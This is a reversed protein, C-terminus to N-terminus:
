QILGWGKELPTGMGRAEASSRLCPAETKRRQMSNGVVATTDRPIHSFEM